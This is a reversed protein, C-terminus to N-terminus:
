ENPKEQKMREEHKRELDALIEQVQRLNDIADQLLRAREEVTLKKSKTFPIIKATM